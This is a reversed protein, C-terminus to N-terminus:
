DNKLSNFVATSTIIRLWGGVTAFGTMFLGAYQIIKGTCEDAVIQAEPSVHCVLPLLIAKLDVAELATVLGLAGIITFYIITKYGKM